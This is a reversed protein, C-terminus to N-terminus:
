RKSTTMVGTTPAWTPSVSDEDDDSLSVDDDSDSDSEMYDPDDEESCDLESDDSGCEDISNDGGTPTSRTVADPSRSRGRQVLRM